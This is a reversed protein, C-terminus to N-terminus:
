TRANANTENAMMEAIRKARTAVHNLRRVIEDRCNQESHDLLRQIVRIEQGLRDLEFAARRASLSAVDSM